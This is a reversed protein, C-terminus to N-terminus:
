QESIIEWIMAQRDDGGSILCGDTWMLRNVSRPHSGYRLTDVVKLLEFTRADWCKITRDRSASILLLSDPSFTLDNITFLHAPQASIQEFDQELDWVRLMADRGGSVLYRGDPSFALSFVSNTHAEKITHELELTDENLLHIAHDSAGAALWRREPSHALCRLSQHSLQLSELSRAEDAHWRTLFGDGGASFVHDDLQLLAFVGKKHHQLNRTKDPQELDIWHIGGNMNGAVLRSTNALRCLSFVQSDVSAVVRGMEPEDLNWEVIWGDGGATLFHRASRGQALAYISANHGTCTNLKRINLPM